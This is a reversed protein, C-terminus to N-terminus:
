LMILRRKSSRAEQGARGRGNQVARARAVCEQAQYKFRRVHSHISDLVQHGRRVAAIIKDPD